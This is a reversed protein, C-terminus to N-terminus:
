YSLAMEYGEEIPIQDVDRGNEFRAMGRVIAVMVPKDEFSIPTNVSLGTFDAVANMYNAQLHKGDPSWSDVIKKITNRKYKKIYKRLIIFAARYGYKDATFQEFVGDTNKDVEGMWYNGIKINLPNHNRLGRPLM